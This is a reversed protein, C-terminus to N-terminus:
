SSSVAIAPGYKNEDKNAPLLCLIFVVISGIGIVLHLLQWWGSRGTDHLRRNTVAFSPVMTALTFLASLLFSFTALVLYLALTGLIFILYSKLDSRGSFTAYEKFTNMYNNIIDNM